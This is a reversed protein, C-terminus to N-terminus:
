LRAELTEIRAMAEQLAKALAAVVAMLNPSQLMDKEDKSGTAATPTLTGQLEHAIFGWREKDDDEFLNGYKKLNYSIPSLAKVKAWMSPLPTVNRKTRYDCTISVAGINTGDVCAYLLGASYLWNHWNASYAGLATNKGRQGMGLFSGFTTHPDINFSGNLHFSGDTQIFAQGSGSGVGNPRLYLQGAGTAALIVTATTSFFAGGASSLPATFQALTNDRTIVVATQANAGNNDYATLVFRSGTRTASEALADGLEMNWRLSTGMRGVINSTQASAKKDLLLSASSNSDFTMATQNVVLFPTLIGEQNDVLTATDNSQLTLAGAALTMLTGTGAKDTRWKSGDYSLNNAFQGSVSNVYGGEDITFADVGTGDAKDNLVLRNRWKSAEALKAIWAFDAGTWSLGNSGTMSTFSLLGNPNGAGSIVAGTTFTKFNDVYNKTAADHPDTPEGVNILRKANFPLDATPQTRGDKTICTSLGAAFGNDESDHLDSKIKIGAAADSVWNRVRNFTGNSDFPM